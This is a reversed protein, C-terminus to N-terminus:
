FMNLIFFVHAQFILFFLIIITVYAYQIKHLKQQSFLHWKTFFLHCNQNVSKFSILSM